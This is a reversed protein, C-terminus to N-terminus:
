AKCTNHVLLAYVTIPFLAECKFKKFVCYIYKKRNYFQIENFEMKKIRGVLKVIVISNTVYNICYCKIIRLLLIYCLFMKYHFTYNKFLVLILGNVAVLFSKVQKCSFVACITRLRSWAVSPAFKKAVRCCFFIVTKFQRRSTLNLRHKISIWDM